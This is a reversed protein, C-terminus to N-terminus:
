LRDILGLVLSRLEAEVKKGTEVVESHSLRADMVGAAM